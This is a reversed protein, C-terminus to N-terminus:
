AILLKYPLYKNSLNKLLYEFREVESSTRTNYRFVYEDIYKQLHKKSVFHYIGDIGRKLLSWFGEVTNTYADNKVYEGASHNVFLHEYLGDVGKYGVWEDTYLTSGQKIHKIMSPTLYISSTTKVTKAVLKGGREVMGHVASKTKTSRGQTGETRKNAHKNKEAGGVFTEDSEVKNELTHNNEIDYCNRIRQLMFWATKQTVEIDKALQLSSIGKKHMTILWIAMFWKQMSIKTSDFITNTKINFYLGTNKCRYKNGACKYVKSNPDFPSVPNGNWFLTELYEICIEESDFTKLLDFLSNFQLGLM